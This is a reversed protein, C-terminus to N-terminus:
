IEEKKKTIPMYTATWRILNGQYPGLTDRAKEVINDLLKIREDDTFPRDMEFVIGIKKWEKM